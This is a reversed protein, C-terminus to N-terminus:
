ERESGKVGYNKLHKMGKAEVGGGDGVDEGGGFPSFEEKRRGMDGLEVLSFEENGGIHFGEGAAM